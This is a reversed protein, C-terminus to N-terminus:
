LRGTLGNYIMEIALGLIVVGGGLGTLAGVFGGAVAAVWICVTLKLVNMAPVYPPNETVEGRAFFGPKEFFGPKQRHRV